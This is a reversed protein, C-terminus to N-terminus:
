IEFSYEKDIFIYDLKHKKCEALIRKNDAILEAMDCEDCLRNEIVNAYGRILDFNGKIYGESMVLCYFKIKDLYEATFDKKFCLPIYCGEVILNQDNEIATKVMERVIPWLYETLDKTDSLPTL